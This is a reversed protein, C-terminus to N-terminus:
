VRSAAYGYEEAADAIWRALYDAYSRHFVLDFSGDPNAAVLAGARSFM